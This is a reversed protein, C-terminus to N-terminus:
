PPLTPRRAAGARFSSPAAPMLDAAAMNTLCNPGRAQAVLPLAGLYLGALGPGVLLRVHRDGLAKRVVDPTATVSLQDDATVLRVPSGLVGGQADLADVEIQLGSQLAPGPAPTAGTFEDVLA